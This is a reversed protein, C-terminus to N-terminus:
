TRCTSRTKKPKEQTDYEYPPYNENTPILDPHWYVAYEDGDLDSGSIENPHPRHGKQPFVICDVLHRLQPIDVAEFTRLDGPHHCPNKTVVVKGVVVKPMEKEWCWKGADNLTETKLITYQCFIQGYELIGTEDVIGFMNRGSNKSIQIRTKVQMRKIEHKCITTILQRFFPEHILDLQAKSILDRLQFLQSPLRENLLEFASPLYLLSEILWHLHQNQLLLFISHPIHRSELLAIVQRNLHISRPASIKCLELMDHTSLFKHMSKRLIMQKETYDLDPNVSVTGKCGGYRIQMVSFKRRLGMKACIEDRLRSSFTGVGDTFIYGNREIDDIIETREVPVRITAASSTFCQAMRASHKAVVREHSFDGMWKYADEFSLNTKNKEDHWYFWFQKDKLQSQSHHLHKYLRDSTLHFGSSLYEDIRWRIQGYDNAQLTEGTEERMEVLCFKTIGGFKPERIIRNTKALKLPKVCITTPTITVSPAYAMNNSSHAFPSESPRDQATEKMRQAYKMVEEYLDLFHYEKARRGIYFTTQYFEHESEISHLYDIFEQSLRYQIRYGISFLMQWSYNKLFTDFVPKWTRNATSKLSLDMMSGAFCIQIGHRYFFALFERFAVRIHNIVIRDMQFEYEDITQNRFRRDLKHQSSDKLTSVKLSIRLTSCVPKPGTRNAQRQIAQRNPLVPQGADRLKRVVSWPQTNILDIVNGKMQIYLVFGDASTTIIVSKDIFNAPLRKIHECNGESKIEKASYIFDVFDEHFSLQWKQHPQKSLKEYSAFTNMTALAGSSWEMQCNIYFFCRALSRFKSLRTKANEFPDVNESSAAVTPTDEINFFPDNFIPRKKLGNSIWFTDGQKLQQQLLKMVSSNVIKVSQKLHFTYSILGYYWQDYSLEQRDYVIQYQDLISQVRRLSNVNNDVIITLCPEEEPITVNSESPNLAEDHGIKFSFDISTQQRQREKEEQILKPLIYNQHYNFDEDHDFHSKTTNKVTSSDDFSTPSPCVSATAETSTAEMRARITAFNCQGPERRIEKFAEIEVTSDSRTLIKTPQIEEIKLQDYDITSSCFGRGLVRETRWIVPSPVLSGVGSTRDDSNQGQVCSSHESQSSSISRDRQIFTSVSNQSLSNARLRTSFSFSKVSGNEKPILKPFDAQQSTISDTDGYNSDIPSSLPTKEPVLKSLLSTKAEWLRIIEQEDRHVRENQEFDIVLDDTQLDVFDDDVIEEDSLSKDFDVDDTDNM